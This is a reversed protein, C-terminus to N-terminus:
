MNVCTWKTIVVVGVVVEPYMPSVLTDLCTQCWLVIKLEKDKMVGVGGGGKSRVKDTRIFV